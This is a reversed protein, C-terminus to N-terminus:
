KKTDKPPIVTPKKFTRNRVRRTKPTSKRFKVSEEDSPPPKDGNDDVKPVKKEEESEDDTKFDKFAKKILENTHDGLQHNGYNEVINANQSMPLKSAEREPGVATKSREALRMRDSTNGNPNHSDGSANSESGAMRSNGHM